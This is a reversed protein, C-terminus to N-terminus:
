RMSMMAYAAGGAIIAVVITYVAIKGGNPQGTDRNFGLKCDACVTHKLLKPGLVGGWWTFTPSKTNTSNCRPCAGALATAPSLPARPPTYPNMPTSM